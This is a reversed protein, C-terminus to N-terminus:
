RRIMGSVTIDGEAIAAKLMELGNCLEEHSERYRRLELMEAEKIGAQESNGADLLKAIYRGRVKAALKAVREVEQSAVDMVADQTHQRNQETHFRDLERIYQQPNVPGAKKGPARGIDNIHAKLEGGSRSSPSNSNLNAPQRAPPPALKPKPLSDSLGADLRQDHSQPRKTSLGNSVPKPKESKGGGPYPDWSSEAVTESTDRAGLGAKIVASLSM